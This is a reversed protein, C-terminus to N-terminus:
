ITEGRIEFRAHGYGKARVRVQDGSSLKIPDTLTVSTGAWGKMESLAYEHGRLVLYFGFDKPGTDPVMVGDVSRQFNLAVVSLQWPENVETTYLLDEAQLDVVDGVSFLRPTKPISLVRLYKQLTTEDGPVPQILSDFIDEIAM